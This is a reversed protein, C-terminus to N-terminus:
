HKEVIDIAEGKLKSLKNLMPEGICIANGQCSFMNDKSYKELNEFIKSILRFVYEKKMTKKVM